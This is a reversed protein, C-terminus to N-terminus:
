KGAVMMDDGGMRRAIDVCYRDYGHIANYGFADGDNPPIMGSMDRSTAYRACRM